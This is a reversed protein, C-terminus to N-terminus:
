IGLFYVMATLLVVTTSWVTLINLQIKDGKEVKQAEVSNRDMEYRQTKENFTYLWYDGKPLLVSGKLRPYTTDNVQITNKITDTLTLTDIVTVTDHLLLTGRVTRPPPSYKKLSDIENKLKTIQLNNQRFVKNLDEAQKKTM